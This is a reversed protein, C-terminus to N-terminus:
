HESYHPLIATGKIHKIKEVNWVVGGAGKALPVSTCYNVFAVWRSAASNTVCLM